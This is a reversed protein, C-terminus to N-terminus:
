DEHPVALHNSPNALTVALALDCIPLPLDMIGALATGTRLWQLGGLLLSGKVTM